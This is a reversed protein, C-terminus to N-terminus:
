IWPKLPYEDIAKDEHKKGLIYYFLGLNDQGYPHGNIASRYYWSYASSPSNFWYELVYGIMNQVRGIYFSTKDTKIELSSDIKAEDAKPVTACSTTILMLAVLTIKFLKM